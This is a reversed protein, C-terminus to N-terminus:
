SIVLNSKEGGFRGIVENFRKFFIPDDDYFEGAMPTSRRETRMNKQEVRINFKMRGDSEELFTLSLDGIRNDRSTGGTWMILSKESDNPSFAIATNVVLAGKIRAFLDSLRQNNDNTM